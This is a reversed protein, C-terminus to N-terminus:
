ASSSFASNKASALVASRVRVAAQHGVRTAITPAPGAPANAASRSSRRAAVDLDVQELPQGRRPPQQAGAHRGVVLLDLAEVLGEVLLREAAAAAEEAVDLHADVDRM